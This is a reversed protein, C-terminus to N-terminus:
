KLSAFYAALNDIDEDSLNAAQQQMLSAMGGQREKSRYAKLASVLYAENQGALNPYAPITAIGNAGHCAACIGAKAKGAEVDGAAMATPATILTAISLLTIAISKM